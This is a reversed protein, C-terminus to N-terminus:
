SMFAPDARILDLEEGVQFVTVMIYNLVRLETRVDMLLQTLPSNPDEAVIGAQRASRDSVDVTGAVGGSLTVVMSGAQPVVTIIQGTTDVPLRGQGSTTVPLYEILQIGPM